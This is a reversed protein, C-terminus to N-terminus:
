RLYVVNAWSFPEPARLDITLKLWEGPQNTSGQVTIRTLNPVSQTHHIM